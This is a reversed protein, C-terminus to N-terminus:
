LVGKISSIIDDLTMDSINKKMRLNALIDLDRTRRAVLDYYIVPQTADAGIRHIRDESQWRQISNESNSYYIAFKCGSKQLNLGTGGSGPTAIFIRHRKDKRNLWIDLNKKRQRDNLGGHFIISYPLFKRLYFIDQKFRCWIIVKEDIPIDEDLIDQLELMRPNNYPDVIWETKGESDILFGNTIQQLKLMKVAANAATIEKKREELELILELAMKQYKARMNPLLNFSWRKYVKEPMGALDKKRARYIYPNTLAKFHDLNRTGVVQNGNKGGMVCFENMFTNAFDIGIIKPDLIKFQAWEDLLNKAIPTGTLLLKSYCNIHKSLKDCLKWRISTANKILHSEDFVVMFNDDYVDLYENLVRRAVKGRLADYNICFFVITDKPHRKFKPPKTSGHWTYVYHSIGCHIVIQEEAWQKHVGKPAIIIASRIYNNIFLECARDIAMKSKGTGPECFFAFNKGNKPANRILDSAEEQFEYPRTKPIYEIHKETKHLEDEMESLDVFPDKITLDFYKHLININHGSPVFTLGKISWRKRGEFRAQKLHAIVEPSPFAYLIAKKSPVEITVQALPKGTKSAQGKISEVYELINM